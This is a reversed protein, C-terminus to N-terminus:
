RVPHSLSRIHAILANMEEGRIAPHSPMSPKGKIAGGMNIIKAIEENSLTDMYVANTHDQPPPKFIKGAPGDGKGGDGHCPACTSKYLGRGKTLVEPSVRPAKSDESEPVDSACALTVGLASAALWLAVRTPKM